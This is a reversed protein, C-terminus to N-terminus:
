AGQASASRVRRSLTSRWRNSAACVGVVDVIADISGAEHLEVDAPDIGHVAGEATALTSFVRAARERVRDPLDAKDLLALIETVPRHEHDGSERHGDEGGRSHESSPDTAVNAYLATISGRKVREFALAWGDLDLGAVTAAITDADAGADVLSALLMDGAVGAACNFWAHNM